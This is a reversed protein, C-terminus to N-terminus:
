LIYTNDDVIETYNNQSQKHKTTFNTKETVYIKDKYIINNGSLVKFSYTEGETLITSSFSLEFFNGVFAASESDVIEEIGEGDKRIHISVSSEQSLGFEIGTACADGIFFGSDNSVRNKFDELSYSSESSSRPQILITQSTLIPKLIKM